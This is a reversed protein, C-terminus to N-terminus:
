FRDELRAYVQSDIDEGFPNLAASDTIGNFVKNRGASQYGENIREEFMARNRIELETVAKEVINPNQLILSLVEPNSPYTRVAESQIEPAVYPVAYLKTGEVLSADVIASAMRLIEEENSHFWIIDKPNEASRRQLDKVQKKSLVIYDMGNPFMIRVDVYELPELKQPINIATYEVLRMDDPYDKEDYLLSRTLATNQSIDFRVVKGVVSSPETIADAPFVDMGIEAPMLDQDTLVDGAKKDTAAIYILKVPHSQLYEEVKQMNIENINKQFFFFAIGTVIVSIIMGLFFGMLTRYRQPRLIM